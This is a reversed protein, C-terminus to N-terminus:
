YFSGNSEVGLEAVDTTSTELPHSRFDFEGSRASFDMQAVADRFRGRFRQAENNWDHVDGTATWRVTFSVAGPTAPAGNGLIANEFDHYDKMRLDSARLTATSAAADVQVSDDDVVITWFLGNARM